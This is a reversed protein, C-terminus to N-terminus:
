VGEFVIGKERRQGLLIMWIRLGLNEFIFQLNTKAKKPLEDYNRAKQVEERNWPNFEVYVPEVKDLTVQDPSYYAVQRSIRDRYGVCVKIPVDPYVCDMHTLVLCNFKGARAFFRLVELDLYVIDRDRGTTAGHENNDERLRNALKEEMMTPLKRTGVSSMYTAKIVGTRHEIERPDVVGETSEFIAECSTRSATVDPYVGFWPDLGIAQAQEFVFAIKEDAWGKRLLEIVNRCYPVLTERQRELRSLYDTLSGVKVDGQLSPVEIQSLEMGTLGAIISEYYTYQGALKGEDFDFLDRIQLGNRLYYDAYAPGIGRGTAGKAVGKIKLAKEWARDADSLLIAKEDIWVEAPIRGGSVESLQRLEEVLDGPHIAMGKGLVLTANETRFGSPIQHLAVRKGDPLEITHGANAGGNARYVVVEEAEQALRDVQEDVVRGKGEDGFAGGGFGVSDMRPLIERERVMFGGQALLFFNNFKKQLGSPLLICPNCDITLLFIFKQLYPFGLL